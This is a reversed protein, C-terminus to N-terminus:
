GDDLVADMAVPVSGALEDAPSEAPARAAFDAGRGDCIRDGRIRGDRIRDGLNSGDCLVDSDTTWFPMWQSPFPDLSAM